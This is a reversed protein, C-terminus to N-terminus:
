NDLYALAVVLKNDENKQIYETLETDDYMYMAILDPSKDVKEFLESNAIVEGMSVRQMSLRYIRDGVQTSIESIEKKGASPLKDPTVDPFISSINKRYFQDKGTLEAFVKNSWILRGNMDMIAYPLALEELIRKDLTDYQNAFAILDYVVFPKHCRLVVVAIGIYILIGVSVVIGAKVDTIYVLINLVVLLACLILPWSMFAKMHGRLKLKNSM